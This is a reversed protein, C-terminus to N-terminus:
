AASRLKRVITLGFSAGLFLLGLLGISPVISGTKPLRAPASETAQAAPAQEAAPEAPAPTPRSVAIIVPVNAPPAPPPPLTGTVQRHQSAVTMPEEVVRTATVTMGRRLDRVDTDRGNINFKTGRPIRFQQHTGDELRLIVSTPPTVHWVTGTVNQVTTVTQPTTTTTITRELKTGPKLEHIGVQQGGVNVKTSEPLNPFHVIRGDENRVFLDNGDVMVVEGRDVQVQHSSEGKATTTETQVQAKMSTAFVLWITGVALVQGIRPLSNKSNM